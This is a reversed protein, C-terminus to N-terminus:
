GRFILVTHGIRIQAGPLLQASTIPHGNVYTGNASNLDEIVYGNHTRTIRAHFRSAQSDAVVMENTPDRGIHLSNGRFGAQYRPDSALQLAAAMATPAAYAAPPPAPSSWRPAQPAARGRVALPSAGAGVQAPTLATSKCIPCCAPKLLFFPLYFIGLLFIFVLWNFEREPTVNRGCLECYAINSM